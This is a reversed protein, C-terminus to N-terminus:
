SYWFEVESTNWLVGVFKIIQNYVYDTHDQWTYSQEDDDDDDYENILPQWLATLLYELISPVSWKNSLWM